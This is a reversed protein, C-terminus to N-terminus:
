LCKPPFNFNQTDCDNTPFKRSDTPIQDSITLTHPFTAL